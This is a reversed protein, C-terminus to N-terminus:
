LAILITANWLFHNFIESIHSWCKIMMMVVMRNHPFLFDIPFIICFPIFWISWMWNLCWKRIIDSLDFDSFKFSSLASNKVFNFSREIGFNSMIKENLIFLVFEFNHISLAFWETENLVLFALFISIEYQSFCFSLNLLLVFLVSWNRLRWRVCFFM